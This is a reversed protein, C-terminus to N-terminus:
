KKVRYKVNKHSGVAEIVSSSIRPKMVYHAGPLTTGLAEAIERIGALKKEQLLRLLKEQRLTLSVNLKENIGVALIRKYTRELTELVNECMYELWIDIPRGEVQVYQLNSIYFRRNENLVEDLSFIHLSDFGKRYLDWTAFARASRGNGDQFPHITVFQLHMLASSIVAPLENAEGNIWDTFEEMMGPIKKWHPAFHLGAKVDVRRYEGAKGGELAGTVIIEHLRLIDKKDIIKDKERKIIWKIASLYNRAMVVHKEPYGVVEKGDFLSEVAEISLTCGEIATSGHALSVAADRVLAPIWPLKVSASQIKEKLGAIEELLRLTRNNINYKPKWMDQM